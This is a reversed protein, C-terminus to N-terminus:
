FTMKFWGQHKHDCQSQDSLFTEQTTTTRFTQGSLGDQIDTRFMGRSLVDYLGDQFDRRLTQGSLGDQFDTRLTWGLLTDQFNKKFTWGSLQFDTRFILGSLGDQLVM